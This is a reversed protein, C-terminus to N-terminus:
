FLQQIKLPASMFSIFLQTLLLAYDFTTDGSDNTFITIPNSTSSKAIKPIVWHWFTQVNGWIAYYWGLIHENIKDIERNFPIDNFPFPFTYLIFHCCFFLFGVKRSVTWPTHTHLTTDM